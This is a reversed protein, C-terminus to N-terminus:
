HAAPKLRAMYLAAVHKGERMAFREARGETIFGFREYLAVARSNDAFVTLEIREVQVWNDCLEIMAQMLASGIGKGTHHVDVALGFTATHRRRARESVELTLQGVLEGDLTAALSHLGPRSTKLKEEWLTVSPWPLQLTDAMIAHENFLRHLAAADSPETHRIIIDSM